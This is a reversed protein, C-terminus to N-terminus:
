HCITHTPKTTIKQKNKKDNNKNNNEDVDSKGNQVLFPVFVSYSLSTPPKMHVQTNRPASPPVDHHPRPSPTVKPPPPPTVSLLQVAAYTCLEHTATNSRPKTNNTGLPTTCCEPQPCSVPWLTPTSMKQQQHQQSNINM